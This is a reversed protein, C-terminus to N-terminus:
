ALHWDGGSAADLLVVSLPSCIKKCHARDLGSAAGSTFNPARFRSSGCLPAAPLEDSSPNWQQGGILYHLLWHLCQIGQPNSSVYQPYLSPFFYESRELHRGSKMTQIYVCSDSSCHKGSLCLTHLSAVKWFSHVWLFLFRPASKSNNQCTKVTDQLKDLLKWLGSFLNEKFCMMLKSSMLLGLWRRKKSLNRSRLWKKHSLIILLM